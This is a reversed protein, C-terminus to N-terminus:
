DSILQGSSWALQAQQSLLAYQDITLSIRANTMQTRAELLNLLNAQGEAYQKNILRFADSASKVGAKGAQIKKRAAQTAFWNQRVQLQIQQSVEAKRQTLIQQEITAQQVKAKNQMGTFVDWQLSVQALWFGQEGFNYGFGQFGADLVANVKPAILNRNLAVLQANAEQAKDLQNLELRQNVAQTQLADLSGEVSTNGPKEVEIPSELPKNLLFNFYAQATQKQAEAQAVEQQLKSIEFEAQSIVEPTAKDNKVLSQNVRLIERLLPLTEEYIHAVELSQLYGYYATRIERVLEQQYVERSVQEMETLAEKARQNYRIDTNLIPQIVRFKTEQFNNPLFQEEVNELDTPYVEAELLQNLGAHIPNFLDGIPFSIARGGGALTYNALFSVQPRFLGKAERLAALSKEYSLQRTALTRNSAIGEQIYQDLIPSQAQLGESPLFIGLVLLVPFLAIKLKM